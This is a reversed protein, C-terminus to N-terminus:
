WLLNYKYEMFFVRNKKVIARICTETLGALKVALGRKRLKFRLSSQLRHIGLAAVNFLISLCFLESIGFAERLHPIASFSRRVNMQMENFLLLIVFCCM